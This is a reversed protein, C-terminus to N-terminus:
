LGGGARDMLGTMGQMLRPGSKMITPGVIAWRGGHALELWKGYPVGHSFVLDIRREDQEVEALLTRRAMGTQDTWPAEQKMQATLVNAQRELYPVLAYDRVRQGVKSVAVGLQAPDRQWVIKARYNAM